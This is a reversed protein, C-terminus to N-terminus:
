SYILHAPAHLYMCLEYLVYVYACAHAHTYGDKAYSMNISVYNVTFLVIRLFYIYTANQSINELCCVSFTDM